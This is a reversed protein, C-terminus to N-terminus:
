MLFTLFKCAGKGKLDKYFLNRDLNGQYLTVELLTWAFKLEM